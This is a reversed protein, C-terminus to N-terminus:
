AASLYGFRQLLRIAEDRNGAADRYIQEPTLRLTTVRQTRRSAGAAGALETEAGAARASRGFSGRTSTGSRTFRRGGATYMGQRANIVQGVDSGEEIASLEARSLGRVKGSEIAARPDMVMDDAAARGAPVHRCDCGPHRAFGTNWEYWKGALVVCRACAPLNLVRVYGSIAPRAAIGAGVATRGADQVQTTGIRVLSSLGHGMAERQVAGRQVASKVAFIPHGLLADMPRGDSAGVFARPQIRGRVPTPQDTEELVRDLYGEAMTASQAQGVSVAVLLEDLPYTADLQAFDVRRWLEALLVALDSTLRSQARYHDRASTPLM